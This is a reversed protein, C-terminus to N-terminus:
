TWWGLMRRVFGGTEEKFSHTPKSKPSATAAAVNDDATLEKELRPETADLSLEYSSGSLGANEDPTLENEMMTEAHTKCFWGIEQGKFNSVRSLSERGDRECLKHINKVRVM